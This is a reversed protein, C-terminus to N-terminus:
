RIFNLIVMELGTMKQGPQLNQVRAVATTKISVEAKFATVEAMYEGDFWLEGWTGNIVEKGNIQKKQM